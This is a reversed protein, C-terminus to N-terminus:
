PNSAVLLIVRIHLHLGSKPVNAGAMLVNDYVTCPLNASLVLIVILLTVDLVGKVYLM